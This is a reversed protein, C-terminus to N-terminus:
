PAANWRDLSKEVCYFIDPQFMLWHQVVTATLVLGIPVFVETPKSVSIISVFKAYILNARNKVYMQTERTVM